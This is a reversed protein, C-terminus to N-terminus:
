LCDMAIWNNDIFWDPLLHGQTLRVKMFSIFGSLFSSMLLIPIGMLFRLAYLFVYLVAHRINCYVTKLGGTSQQGRSVNRGTVKM